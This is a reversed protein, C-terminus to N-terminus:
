HKQPPPRCEGAASTDNLLTSVAAVHKAAIEPLSPGSAGLYAAEFSFEGDAAELIQILDKKKAKDVGGETDVKIGRTQCYLRLTKLPLSKYDVTAGTVASGDTPVAPAAPLAPPAAEAPVATEAETEVVVPAAAAAAAAKEQARDYDLLRAILDTKKGAQKLGREKLLAKLEAAGHKAYPNALLVATSEAALEAEDKDIKFVKEHV